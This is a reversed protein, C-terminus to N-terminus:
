RAAPISTTFLHLCARNKAERSSNIPAWAALVAESGKPYLVAVKTQLPPRTEAGILRGRSDWALGISRGTKELFVSVNDDKDIKVLREANPECFILSGDPAAIAGEVAQFGWKILQIKTGGAVVGPIDPAVANTIPQRLQPPQGQGQAFALV